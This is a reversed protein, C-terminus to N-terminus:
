AVVTGVAGDVHRIQYVCIALVRQRGGFVDRFELWDTTVARHLAREIAHATALSVVYTGTLTEIEYYDTYTM